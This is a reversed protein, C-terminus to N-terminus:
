VTQVQCIDSEVRERLVIGPPSDITAEQNLNATPPETSYIRGSSAGTNAKTVNPMEDPVRLAAVAADEQEAQKMEEDFTPIGFNDPDFQESWLVLESYPVFRVVLACDFAEALRRLTEINPRVKGPTQIASIRPQLMGTREALSEQTWGRSKMLARIQFSIGINIQSSVYAKRYESDRLKAITKSIM